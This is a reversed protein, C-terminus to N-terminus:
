KHGWIEMGLFIVMVLNAVFVVIDFGLTKPVERRPHEKTCEIMKAVTGAVMIWFMVKYIM